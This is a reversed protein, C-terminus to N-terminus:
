GCVGNARMVCRQSTADLGIQYNIEIKRLDSQSGNRITLFM